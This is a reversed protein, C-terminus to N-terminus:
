AGVVLLLDWNITAYYTQGMQAFSLGLKFAGKIKLAVFNYMM